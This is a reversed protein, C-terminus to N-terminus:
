LAGQGVEPRGQTSGRRHRHVAIQTEVLAEGLLLIAVKIDAASMAGPAQALDLAQRAKNSRQTRKVAKKGTSKNATRNANAM